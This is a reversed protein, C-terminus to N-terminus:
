CRGLVDCSGYLEVGRKDWPQRSRAGIQEAFERNDAM